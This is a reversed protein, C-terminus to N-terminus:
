RRGGVRQALVRYVFAPNGILYRRWLRRPEHALRHVWELGMRNMWGPARPVEGAQFDYFAGVTVGLRAGTQYLYRDLWQEQLPMGMGVMLLGTGSNRIKDAVGAHEGPGIFGDHTGVVNLTPLKATLYSAARDAVGPAAGLFFVPWGRDAAHELMLPSFFNGNLDAPFRAGLIRAGLMIGKGDNLVLDARNLAARHGPDANAINVAHVNEVAIWAPADQMYLRDAEALAGAPDLCAFRIGLLDVTPVHHTM